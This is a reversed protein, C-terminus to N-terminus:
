GRTLVDLTEADLERDAYVLRVADPDPNGADPGKWVLGLGASEATRRSAENHELLFAIVPTAPDVRKATEISAISLERAYGRGWVSPSLRYYLNWVRGERRRACGGIGVIRDGDHERVSWFGLGDAEWDRIAQEVMAATKDPSTHRGTPYHTWVAPDAHLEYLSEVDDLSVRDLRLRDTRVHEANTVNVIM